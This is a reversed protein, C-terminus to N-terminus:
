RGFRQALISEILVLALLTYALSRWLQGSEGAGSSEHTRVGGRQYDFEFGPLLRRLEPEAIRRTDSEHAPVNVAFFDQRREETGDAKARDDAGPLTVEYVGARDTQEYVVALLGAVSTPEVTVPRSEGPRQVFAPKGFQRPSVQCILPEGVTLNRSSSPDRAVQAMVEQMLALYAPWSPMDNWADDATSAFVVVRGKGYGREVIAPAGEAFKCVIRAGAGEDLGELRCYRFFFPSSLRVAKQERFLRVFPHDSVEDSIHVAQKRDNADGVPNGLSCPLLGRGDRYLVEKYFARDVRDGPFVLLAGGRRVYGDLAAVTAEGLREVNALVVADYAPLDAGSLGEATVVEPLFLSLEGENGPRLARRLYDTEGSFAEGGPEGDVLLVRVSERTALALVRRDDKPLNDGELEVSVTHVGAARFVHRFECQATGGPAIAALTTRQQRFGDVLFHVTVGSATDPGYNAIEARLAAEGGAVMLAGEAAVRTVALNAPELAGTDVLVFRALQSLRKARDADEAALSAGAGLWSVRQLDTVLYVEKVPGEARALVEEAAELARPMSSSADSLPLRDRAVAARAAELDFSPEQAMAQGSGAAAVLAWADGERLSGMLEEAFALGREYSTASGDRYGMSMSTDFVLLVFRRREALAALAGRKVSPQAVLLVLVAIMLVRLALLILQEIRVRRNNKRSSALLFEMAAWEVVRFRRRNLLHIIIPASALLLGWLAPLNEFGLM